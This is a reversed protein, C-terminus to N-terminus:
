RARDRGVGAVEEREQAVLQARGAGRRAAVGALVREGRDPASAHVRPPREVLHELAPVRPAAVVGVLQAGDVAGVDLALSAALDEVVVVQEQLPPRESRVGDTPVAARGLLDVVDEDVLHLVGVRELDVEEGLERAEPAVSVATPSSACAM